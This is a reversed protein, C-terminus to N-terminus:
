APPWTALGKLFAPLDEAPVLFDVAVQNVAHQPMYSVEATAPDQVVVIGGRGKVYQLGEVGDANGGSLLLCILDAGYVDGACRFTVDISPRSFNVRESYDLSFTHDAEILVHYDAPAIYIAGPLIPEKEEVEKILAQTRSALLEELNSEFVSNRHLIILIPVPFEPHIVPLIGLIVQLSGASGGIIMLKPRRM